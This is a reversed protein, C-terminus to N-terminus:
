SNGALIEDILGKHRQYSPGGNSRLTNAIAQRVSLSESSQMLAVLRPAIRRNGSLALTQAAASVVQESPDDLAMVLLAHGHKGPDQHPIANVIQTRQEDSASGFRRTLHTMAQQGGTRALISAAHAFSQKNDLAGAISDIAAPTGINELGSLAANQRSSEKSSLAATLTRQAERTGKAGLAQLASVAVEPSAHAAAQTLEGISANQAMASVITQKVLPTVKDDSLASVLERRTAPDTMQGLEWAARYDNKHLRDFLTRRAVPDGQRILGGAAQARVNEDTSQMLERLLAQSNPGPNKNAMELALQQAASDGTLAQQRMFRRAEPDDISGLAQLAAARVQRDGNEYQELLLATAQKGKKEAVVQLARAALPGSSSAIIRELKKTGDDDLAASSLASLATHRVELQFDGDLTALLDANPDGHSTRALAWAASTGLEPDALLEVLRARGEESDTQALASAAAERVRRHRSNLAKALVEDPVAQSMNMLAYAASIAIQQQRDDVYGLLLAKVDSSPYNTLASLASSRDELNGRQTLGLLKTKAQPSGLDGLAAMAAHRTSAPQTRTLEELTDFARADGMSGLASIAALQASDSSDVALAALTELAAESGTSALARALDDRYIRFGPQGLLRQLSATALDSRAAGIAAIAASRLPSRRDSAIEELEELAGRTGLRGLEAIIARRVTDNRASRLADILGDLARTGGTQGLAHVLRLREARNGAALRDRLEEIEEPTKPASIAVPTQAGRLWGWAGIPATILLAAALLRVRRRLRVYDPM